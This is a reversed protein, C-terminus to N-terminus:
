ERQACAAAAFKVQQPQNAHPRQKALNGRASATALKEDGSELTRLM